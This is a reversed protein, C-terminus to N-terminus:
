LLAFLFSILYLYFIAELKRGAGHQARNDQLPQQGPFEEPVHPRYRSIENEYTEYKDETFRNKSTQALTTTTTTTATTTVTTRKTSARTTAPKATTSTTSSAEPQDHFFFSHM